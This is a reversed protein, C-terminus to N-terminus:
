KMHMGQPYFMSCALVGSVQANHLPYLMPILSMSSNRALDFVPFHMSKLSVASLIALTIEVGSSVALWHYQIDRRSVEQM